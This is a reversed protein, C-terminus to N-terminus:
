NSLRYCRKTGGTTRTFSLSCSVIALVRRGCMMSTRLRYINKKSGIVSETTAIITRDM